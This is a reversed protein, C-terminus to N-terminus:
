PQVKRGCTRSDRWAIVDGLRYRIARKGARFWRPGEGRMRYHALTEKSLGTLESARDIGVALDLDIGPSPNDGNATDSM